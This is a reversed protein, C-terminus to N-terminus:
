ETIVKINTFNLNWNGEAMKHEQAIKIGNFDKYNEFTNTMSPETANAERFNWEKITYNDDYFIDYADGPTYGGDTPYTLTVKNLQKKSIPAETISPESLTASKDWILQFPLLAWYKDNIFARDAKLSEQEVKFTNYTITDEKTLMTVENLKPKWVWSREFHSSDKDVNFTFHFAKVKDWNTFGHANAIKEALTYEKKQEKEKCSSFLLLCIILLRYM